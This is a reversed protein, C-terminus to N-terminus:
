AWGWELSAEARQDFWFTLPKEVISHHCPMMTNISHEKVTLVTTRLLTEDKM